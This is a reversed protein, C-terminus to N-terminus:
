KNEAFNMGWLKYMKEMPVNLHFHTSHNGTTVTYDEGERLGYDGIYDRIALGVKRGTIRNIIETNEKLGEKSLSVPYEEDHRRPVLLMTTKGYKVMFKYHRAVNRILDGTSLLCTCMGDQTERANQIKKFICKAISEQLTGGKMMLEKYEEVKSELSGPGAYSGLEERLVKAM